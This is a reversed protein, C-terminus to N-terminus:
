RWNTLYTIVNLTRGSWSVTATVKRTNPDNTGGSSVINSSGDRMVTDFIVKRTFIGTTETGSTLVWTNPNVGTNLVFYYSNGPVVTTTNGLGTTAWTTGDRFSRATEISEKSLFNAATSQRIATSNKVVAVGVDFLASFAIGIIMVALFAELLISGRQVNSM